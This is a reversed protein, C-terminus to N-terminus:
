QQIILTAPFHSLTLDNRSEFLKIFGLSIFYNSSIIGKM